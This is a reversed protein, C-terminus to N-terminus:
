NRPQDVPPQPVCAEGEFEIWNFADITVDDAVRVSERIISNTIELRLTGTALEGRRDRLAAADTRGERWDTYIRRAREYDEPTLV